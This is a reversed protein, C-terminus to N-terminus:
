KCLVPFTPEGEINSGNKLTLRIDWDGTMTFNVKGEYYGKGKDIPAINNPSGHDMSTMWPEVEFTLGTVAPWDMMSAKKYVAIKLENEGVVPKEPSLLAVFYKTTNDM